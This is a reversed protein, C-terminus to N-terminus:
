RHGASRLLSNGPCLPPMADGILDFWPSELIHAILTGSSILVSRRQKRPVAAMVMAATGNTRADLMLASSDRGAPPSSPAMGSRSPAMPQSLEAGKLRLDSRPLTTNTSKQVYVQMLEMRGNGYKLFQAAFYLSAPKTRIPACVGSNENSCSGIFTCFATRLKFTVKGTAM